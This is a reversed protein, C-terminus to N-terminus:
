DFSFKALQLKGPLYSADIEVLVPVGTRREAWVRYDAGNSEVEYGVLDAGDIKKQGLATETGASRRLVNLWDSRAALEEASSRKGVAPSLNTPPADSAKNEVGQAENPEFSGGIQRGESDLIVRHTGRPSWIGFERNSPFVRGTRSDKEVKFRYETSEPMGPFKVRIEYTFKHDFHAIVDTYAAQSVGADKPLLLGLSILVLIAAALSLRSLWRRSRGAASRYKPSTPPRDNQSSAQKAPLSASEDLTSASVRALLEARHQEHRQNLQGYLDKLHEEPSGSM